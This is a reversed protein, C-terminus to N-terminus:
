ANGAEKTDEQVGNRVYNDIIVAQRVNGHALTIAELRLYEDKSIESLEEPLVHRFHENISDMLMRFVYQIAAEEDLGQYKSREIGLRLSGYVRRELDNVLEFSM